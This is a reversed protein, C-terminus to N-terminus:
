SRSCPAWPIAESALAAYIRNILLPHSSPFPNYIGMFRPRSGTDRDYIIAKVAGLSVLATKVSASSLENPIAYTSAVQQNFVGLTQMTLSGSSENADASLGLAGLDSLEIGGKRALLNATLRLGVGVYVPLRFAEFGADLYQKDVQPNM